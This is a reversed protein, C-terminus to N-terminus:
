SSSRPASRSPLPLKDIKRTFAIAKQVSEESSNEGRVIEVLPM